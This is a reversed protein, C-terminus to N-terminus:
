AARAGIALRRRMAEATLPAGFISSEPQLAASDALRGAPVPDFGLRDVFNAVAIVAAPDDGCIALAARGAAGAPRALDQIQHYGLHNLTKVLRATPPLADRVLVSSPQHSHQFQPLLGDVPPWYNMVDIVIRDALLTLPLDTFRRLPVALVVIDADTALDGVDTAIVGPTVINTIMATQDPPGSAAIKVTYGAEVARRAIATGSKGAGFIGVRQAAETVAGSNM